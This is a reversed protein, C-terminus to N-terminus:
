GAGGPRPCRSPSSGHQATLRGGGGRAPGDAERLGWRHPGGQVLPVAPLGPGPPCHPRNRSSTLSARLTLPRPRPLQPADRAATHSGPNPPARPSLFWPRVAAPLPLFPHGSAPPAASVPQAPQNVTSGLPVPHTQVRACRGDPSHPASSMLSCGTVPLGLPHPQSSPVGLQQPQLLLLLLRSTSRPEAPHLPTRQCAALASPRPGLLFCLLM